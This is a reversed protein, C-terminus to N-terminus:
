GRVGAPCPRQTLLEQAAAPGPRGAGPPRSARRACSVFSCWVHSDSVEDVDVFARVVLRQRRGVVDVARELLHDLLADDGLLGAEVRELNGVAVAARLAVVGPRLLEERDERALGVLDRDPRVGEDRREVVRHPGGLLERDDVVEGLPPEVRRHRPAVVGAVPALEADRLLLQQAAEELATLIQLSAKLPSRNSKSPCCQFTSCPRSM